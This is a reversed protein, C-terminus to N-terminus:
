YAFKWGTTGGKFVWVGFNVGDTQYVHLGVPPSAIAIRQAETKTPFIVGDPTLKLKASGGNYNIADIEYFINGSSVFTRHKAEGINDRHAIQVFGMENMEGSVANRFWEVEHRYGSTLLTPSKHYLTRYYANPLEDAWHEWVENGSVTYRIDKSLGSTSGTRTVMSLETSTYPIANVVPNAPDTNNVSTGTVSQVGDVQPKRQFYYQGYKITIDGDADADTLAVGPSKEFVQQYFLDQRTTKDFRYLVKYEKKSVPDYLNYVSIEGNVNM